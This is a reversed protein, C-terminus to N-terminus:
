TATEYTSQIRKMTWEHVKKDSGWSEPPFTQKILKLLQPLLALEAETSYMVAEVLNGRLVCYLFGSPYDGKYLYRDLAYRMRQPVVRDPEM